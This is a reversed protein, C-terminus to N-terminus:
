EVAPPSYLAEHTIGAPLLPAYEQWQSRLTQPDVTIAYVVATASGLIVSNPVTWRFVPTWENPVGGYPALWEPYIVALKAGAEGVDRALFDRNYSGDRKSRLVSHTALGYTDYIKVKSLFAVVGIDNVAVIENPYYRDLFAATQAQQHYTNRMALPSCYLAYAGRGFLALAVVSLWIEFGLRRGLGSGRASRYQMWDHFCLLTGWVALYAEYRFFWHMRGLLVHQLCTLLFLWRITALTQLRSDPIEGEKRRMFLIASAAQVVFPATIHPYIIITAVIRLAESLLPRAPDFPQTKLLFATPVIGAGSWWGYIGFLAPGLAAACGLLFLDRLRGHFLLLLGAGGVLFVAEPRILGLIAVLGFWFWRPRDSPTTIWQSVPLLFLGFAIIQLIHEMGGVILPTFPTVIALAILTWTRAQRSLTPLAFRIFRDLLLLAVPVLALNFAVPAYLVSQLHISAWITLLLAWVPSSSANMPEYSNVGWVGHQLNKVISLHIYADDIGYFFHGDSIRIGIMIATAAIALTVVAAFLWPNRCYNSSDQAPSNTTQPM